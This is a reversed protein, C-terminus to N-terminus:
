ELSFMVPYCFRFRPETSNQDEKYRSVAEWQNEYRELIKRLQNPQNWHENLCFELTCYYSGVKWRRKDPPILPINKLSGNKDVVWTEGNCAWQVPRGIFSFSKDDDPEIDHRALGVKVTTGEPFNTEWSAYVNHDPSSSIALSLIIGPNQSLCVKFRWLEPTLAPPKIEPVFLAVSRAAATENAGENEMVERFFDMSEEKGIQSLTYIIKQRTYPHLNRKYAEILVPVIGLNSRKFHMTIMELLSEKFYDRNILRARVVRTPVMSMGPLDLAILTALRQGLLAMKNKANAISVLNQWEGNAVKEIIIQYQQDPSLEFLSKKDLM